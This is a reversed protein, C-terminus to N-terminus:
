TELTTSRPSRVMAIRGTRALERLGYPRILEIFDDVDGPSATLELVMTQAVVDVVRAGCANCLAIIDARAGQPTHVRILSTERELTPHSTVDTVALIDVLRDLQKVVQEVRDANVVLTMRSVEPVESPGVAISEINFGRRRFLSVARNLAGPQDQMLAVVTHRM